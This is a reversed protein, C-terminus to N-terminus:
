HPQRQETIIGINQIGAQRVQEIVAVADRYMARADVKLYVERESGRRLADQIETPLDGSQMQQTGYFIRGDRTVTILLADERVAGPMPKAHDVAALDIPM